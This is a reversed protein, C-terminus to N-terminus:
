AGCCKKHKKGSGCPCPDNRGVSQAAPEKSSVSVSDSSGGGDAWAEVDEEDEERERAFVPEQGSMALRQDLAIKVLEGEGSTLGGALEDIKRLMGRVRGRSAGGPMALAYAFLADARLEEDDFFRRLRGVEAALGSYGVGWIANRKVEVDPDDLHKPFLTSFGRDLSRWMAELARARTEARDYFLRMFRTVDDDEPGQALAILAGMREELDAGDDRLVKLM